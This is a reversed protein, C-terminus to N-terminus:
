NIVNMSYYRELSTPTAIQNEFVRECGKLPSGPGVNDCLAEIIRKRPSVGAFIYIISAHARGVFLKLM